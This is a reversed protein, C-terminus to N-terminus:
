NGLLYNLLMGDASSGEASPAYYTTGASAGGVPKAVPTAESGAAGTGTPAGPTVTTAGPYKATAEAPTAGKLVALTRAMVISTGSSPHASAVSATTGAASSPNNFLKANACASATSVAYTLCVEGVVESRLFHGLADYGNTSGAGLFIFDLIRELGGTSRLSTLLEAANFSFPKAEKGLAALRGLLPQLSTLAPGSVKSTAGLSKFFASSSNSFAPLNTFVKNIGPAAVKLDNFVPTTQDAFRALREMAPGLQKLFQPFLALNRALAGRHRASAQAVTNSQVIFDAVRNRVEAFPKLAQDSDVALKALVKNESSLIALVRDLEQLAPNARRIVVNLDSGRGALGAGLENILITFRQREPLRSIDGLLDVDVPSHTNQVPLLYQGSGEHGHGIKKLAPPLPTGAVRPQTPLCDVFKEGILAQPRVTCSADARFDKFGPNSINLVVAAKAQPTATVSGVTGIKVGGIKVNEGPIINGADDFIARVTYGGNSGGASTTLLVAAATAAVALIAVVAAAGRRWGVTQTRM